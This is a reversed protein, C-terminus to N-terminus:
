AGVGDVEVKVDVLSSWGDPVDKVAEEIGGNSHYMNVGCCGCAARRM